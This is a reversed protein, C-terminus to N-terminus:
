HAPRLGPPPEPSPQWWWQISPPTSRFRRVLLWDGRVIVPTEPAPPRRYLYIWAPGYPTAICERSYEQPYDELRDLRALLAKDLAYVEGVVATRGAAMAAPYRGLHFLTYRAATRYRGLFPANKLLRHNYEGRRLTGYVFLCRPSGAM